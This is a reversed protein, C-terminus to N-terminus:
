CRILLQIPYFFYMCSALLIECNNFCHFIEGGGATVDEMVSFNRLTDIDAFMVYAIHTMNLRFDMIDQNQELDEVDAKMAEVIARALRLREEVDAELAATEDEALTRPPRIVPRATHYALGNEVHALVPNSEFFGQVCDLYNRHVEDPLPNPAAM